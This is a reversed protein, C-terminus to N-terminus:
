ADSARALLGTDVGVATFTRDGPLSPAAIGQISAM